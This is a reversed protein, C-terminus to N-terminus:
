PLLLLPQEVTALGLPGVAKLNQDVGREVSTVWLVRASASVVRRRSAPM